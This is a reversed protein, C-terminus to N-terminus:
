STMKTMTMSGTPTKRDTSGMYLLFSEPDITKKPSAVPLRVRRAQLQFESAFGKPGM